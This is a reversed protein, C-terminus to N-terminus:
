NIPIIKVNGSTVGTERCIQELIISSEQQTIMETSILVNVNDEGITVIANKWGRLALIGELTMEQEERECLRLLQRQAMAILEADASEDHAVDNLQAKEMARLQQRATRFGDIANTKEETLALSSYASVSANMSRLGFWLVIGIGVLFLIAAFCIYRKRFRSM